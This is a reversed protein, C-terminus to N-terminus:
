KGGGFLDKFAVWIHETQGIMVKKFKNDCLPALKSWLNDMEDNKWASFSPWPYGDPM